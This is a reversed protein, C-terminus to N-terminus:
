GVLSAYVIVNDTYSRASRDFAGGCTILRLTPQPTDGYVAHTPFGNKPHQELRDVVFRVVRGDRGRLAVRDGPRLDRLRHFVAPGAHSDVHGVVVAPGAQGPRAGGTWWGAHDFAEPVELTRDDNLGLAMVPAAVGIAPIRVEVPTVPRAPVPTVRRETAPANAGDDHRAPVRRGGTPANAGDDHRIQVRVESAPARWAAAGGLAVLAVAAIVALVVGGSLVAHRQGTPAATRPV